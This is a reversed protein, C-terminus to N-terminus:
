EGLGCRHAVNGPMHLPFDPSAIATLAREDTWVTVAAGLAGEQLEMVFLRMREAPGSRGIVDRETAPAVILVFGLQDEPWAVAGPFHDARSAFLPQPWLPPCLATPKM